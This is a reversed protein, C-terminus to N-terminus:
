FYRMWTKNKNGKRLINEIVQVIEPERELWAKQRGFETVHKRREAETGSKGQLKQLTLMETQLQLKLEGLSLQYFM